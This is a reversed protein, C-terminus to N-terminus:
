KYQKTENLRRREAQRQRIAEQVYDEQTCARIYDIMKREFAAFNPHDVQLEASKLSILLKMPNSSIRLTKNDTDIHVHIWFSDEDYSKGVLRSWNNSKMISNEHYGRSQMLEEYWERSYKEMNKILQVM